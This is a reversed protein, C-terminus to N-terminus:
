VPQNAASNDYTCTLRFRDGPRIEIREPDQFEYSQQWNFDWGPIDILCEEDGEARLLDVRIRQGLVHMHPAVGAIEFPETGRHTFERVQESKEEGAPIQIALHAQPRTDIVYPQPADYVKFQVTTLDPAPTAALTNYHVQMVMRSGAPVFRAVGEEYYNPQMGPVWGVVPGTNGLGTGGYCTYGPGDEDADMAEMAAVKEPPVIYVLVHHVVARDGPVVQAGALFTDADFTADLAFCRYDDPRETSAVYPELPATAIDAPFDAVQAQEIPADAPDGAPAGAEVWAKFLAKQDATLLRERKFRRCDPDPQWPPMRGAEISALAAPAMAAVQEPTELAFPAAGGAQHCSVCQAQILPQIDAHFTPGQEVPPAASGSDEDDCGLMVTTAALALMWARMM